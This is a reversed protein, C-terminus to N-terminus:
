GGGIDSTLGGGTVAGGAYLSGDGTFLIYAGLANGNMTIDGAVTVEGTSIRIFADRNPNGSNINFSGTRFTGADILVAKNIFNNTSNLYTEGSVTLSGAANFQVYSNSNGADIRLAAVSNPVSATVTVTRNNTIYVTGAGATAGPYDGPACNVWAGGSRIQWTTNSNWNGSARTQYDGNTQGAAMISFVLGIVMFIIKRAPNKRLM